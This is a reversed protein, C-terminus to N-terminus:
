HIPASISIADWLSDSDMPRINHLRGTFALSDEENFLFQGISTADGALEEDEVFAVLGGGTWDATEGILNDVRMQADSAGEGASIRKSRQRATVLIVACSREELFSDQMVF